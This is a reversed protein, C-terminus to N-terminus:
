IGYDFSDYALGRLLQEMDRAPRSSVEIAVVKAPVGTVIAFAPVDSLVV